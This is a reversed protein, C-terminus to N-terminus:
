RFTLGRLAPARFRSRRASPQRVPMTASTLAGTVPAAAARRSVAVPRRPPAVPRDPANALKYATGALGGLGPALTNLGGSVGGLLMAEGIDGLDGGRLVSGTLGKAAGTLAKDGLTSGTMGAGSAGSLHSLGGGLAGGVGGLLAGKGVDGGAGSAGVAGSLAGAGAGGLASGTAGGVGAAGLGGIFAPAAALGMLAPVVTGMIKGFTSPGSSVTFAENERPTYLGYEPSYLFKSPDKYYVGPASPDDVGALRFAKGDGGYVPDYGVPLNKPAYRKGRFVTPSDRGMLEWEPDVNKGSLFQQAMSQQVEPSLYQWNGASYDYPMGASSLESMIQSLSADRPVDSLAETTFQTVRNRQAARASDLNLPKLDM